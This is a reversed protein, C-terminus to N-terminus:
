ESKIEKETVPSDNKPPPNSGRGSLSPVLSAALDIEKQESAMVEWINFSGNAM